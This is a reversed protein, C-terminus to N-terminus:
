REDCQYNPIPPLDQWAVVELNEYGGTDCYYRTREWHESVVVLKMTKPDILNERTFTKIAWTPSKPKDDKLGLWEFVCALYKGTKEPNKM